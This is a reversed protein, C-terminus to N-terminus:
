IPQRGPSSDRQRQAALRGNLNPYPENLEPFEDLNPLRVILEGHAKMTSEGAALQKRYDHLSFDLYDAEVSRPVVQFVADHMYTKGVLLAHGLCFLYSAHNHEILPPHEISEALGEAEQRDSGYDLVLFGPELSLAAPRGQSRPKPFIREPDIRMMNGSAEVPGGPAFRMVRELDTKLLGLLPGLGWGAAEVRAATLEIDGREDLRVPGALTIPVHLLGWALEADMRMGREDVSIRPNRLPIGAAPFLYKGLLADVSETSLRLRGKVLHFTYEDTNEPVLPREPDDVQVEAVLDELLLVVDPDFHLRVNRTWLRLRGPPLKEVQREAETHTLGSIITQGAAKTFALAAAAERLLGRLKKWDPM